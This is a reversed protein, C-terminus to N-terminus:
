RTEQRELYLLVQGLSEQATKREATTSHINGVKLYTLKLGDEQIATIDFKAAKLIDTLTRLGGPRLLTRVNWTGMKLDIDM